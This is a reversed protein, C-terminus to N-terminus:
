AILGLGYVRVMVLLGITPLHASFKAIWHTPPLIAPLRLTWNGQLIRGPIDHLSWMLPCMCDRMPLSGDSVVVISWCLNFYKPWTQLFNCFTLLSGQFFSMMWPVTLHVRPFPLGLSLHLSPRFPILSWERLVRDYQFHCIGTSHDWIMSWLLPDALVQFHHRRCFRFFSLIHCRANQRGMFLVSQILISQSHYYVLPLCSPSFWWGILLWHSRFVLVASASIPLHTAPCSQGRHICQWEIAWSLVLLYPM